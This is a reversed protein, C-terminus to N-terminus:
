RNYFRVIICISKKPKHHDPAQRLMVEYKSGHSDLLIYDQKLSKGLTNDQCETFHQVAMAGNMAASSSSTYNFTMEM